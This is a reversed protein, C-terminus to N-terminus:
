TRYQFESKTAPMAEPGVEAAILQELAQQRLEIDEGPGVMIETILPPLGHPGGPVLRSATIYPIIGLSGAPGARFERHIPTPGVLLYARVEHQVHYAAQKVGVLAAEAIM